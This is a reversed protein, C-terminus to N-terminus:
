HCFSSITPHNPQVFSCKGGDRKENASNGLQVGACAHLINQWAWCACGSLSYGLLCVPAMACLYFSVLGEGLGPPRYLQHSSPRPFLSYGAIQCCTKHTLRSIQLHGQWKWILQTVKEESQRKGRVKELELASLRTGSFSICILAPMWMGAPPAASLVWPNQLPNNSCFLGFGWM